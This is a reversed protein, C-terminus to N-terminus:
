HRLCRLSTGDAPEYFSLRAIPTSRAFNRPDGCSSTRSWGDCKGDNFAFCANFDGSITLTGTRYAEATVSTGFVTGHGGDRAEAFNRGTASLGGLTAVGQAGGELVMTGVDFEVDVSAGDGTATVVLDTGLPRKWFATASASVTAQVDFARGPLTFTAGSPVEIAATRAIPIVGGSAHKVVARRAVSTM